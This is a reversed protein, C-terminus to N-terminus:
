PSPWNTNGSYPSINNTGGTPGGACNFYDYVGYLGGVFGGNWTNNLMKGSCWSAFMVSGTGACPGGAVIDWGRNVINDEIDLNTMRNLNLQSYTGTLTNGKITVNNIPTTNPANGLWIGRAPQTTTSWTITNNTFTWDHANTGDVGSAVSVIGAYGGGGVGTITCNNITIHDAAFSTFNPEIDIGNQAPNTITCTDILCGSVGDIAMGQGNYNTDCTLHTASVNTCPTAKGVGYPPTALGINEVDFWVFYGTCHKITMNTILTSDTAELSIPAQFEGNGVPFGVVPVNGDITGNKLTVDTGGTIFWTFRHETGATIALFTCGNFDLVLHNRRVLLYAGYSGNATGPPSGDVYNLGYGWSGQAYGYTAGAGFQLVNPHGPTGDPVSNIWQQIAFTTDTAGTGDITGPIPYVSPPPGSTPASRAFTLPM